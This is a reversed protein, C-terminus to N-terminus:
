RDSDERLDAHHIEIHLRAKKASYVVYVRTSNFKEFAIADFAFPAKKIAGATM